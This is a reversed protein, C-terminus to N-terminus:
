AAPVSDTEAGAYQAHFIEDLHPETTRLSTVTHRAATKIIADPTGIVQACLMTGTVDLIPDTIGPLGYFQEITVPDAFGIEIRRVATARLDAVTDLPSWAATACSGSVTPSRKSKM